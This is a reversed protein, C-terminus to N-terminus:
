SSSEDLKREFAIRLVVFDFRASGSSRIEKFIEIVIKKNLKLSMFVLTEGHMAGYLLTDEM